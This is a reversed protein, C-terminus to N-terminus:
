ISGEPKGQHAPTFPRALPYSLPTRSNAPNRPQRLLFTVERSGGLHICSSAIEHVDRLHAHIEWVSEAHAGGLTASEESRRECPRCPPCMEAQQPALFLRYIPWSQVITCTAYGAPQLPAFRRRLGRLAPRLILAMGSINM